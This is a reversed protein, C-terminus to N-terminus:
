SLLITIVNDQIIRISTIIIGRDFYFWTGCFIKVPQLARLRLKHQKLRCNRRRRMLVENSEEYVAGLFQNYLIGIGINFGAGACIALRHLWEDSRVLGVLIGITASMWTTQALPGLDAFVANITTALIQTQRYDGIFKTLDASENIVTEFLNIRKHLGAKIEMNQSLLDHVASKVVLLGPLFTTFAFSLGITVNIFVACAAILNSMIYKVLMLKTNIPFHMQFLHPPLQPHVMCALTFMICSVYGSYYVIGSLIDFSTKGQFTPNSIIIGGDFYFLSGCFIKIPQLSRFHLKHHRLRCLRRRRMLAENSEEYVAGAFHCYLIGMGLNMGAGTCLAVRQFWQDSRVLCVLVAITAGMWTAQALPGLDSSLANITTVLIQTQRYDGIFKTVDANEKMVTKFLSKRKHFGATIEINQWRM